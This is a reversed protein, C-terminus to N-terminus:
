KGRGLRESLNELLYQLGDPLKSQMLQSVRTQETKVSSLKISTSGILPEKLFNILGHIKGNDREAMLCRFFRDREDGDRLSIDFEELLERLVNDEPKELNKMQEFLKEEFLSGVLGRFETKTIDEIDFSDLPASSEKCDLMAPSIYSRILQEICEIIIQRHQVNSADMNKLVSDNFADRMLVTILSEVTIEDAIHSM